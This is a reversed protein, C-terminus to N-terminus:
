MCIIIVIFLVIYLNEGVLSKVKLVTVVMLQANEGDIFLLRCTTSMFIQVLPLSMSHNDGSSFHM